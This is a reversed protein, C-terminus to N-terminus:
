QTSSLSAGLCIVKKPKEASIQHFSYGVRVGMLTQRLLIRPGKQLTSGFFEKNVSEVMREIRAFTKNKEDKQIEVEVRDGPLVRLMETPPLFVDKGSDLAVFGFKQGTGKVRGLQLNRSAKIDSKLQKLQDLADLKLM